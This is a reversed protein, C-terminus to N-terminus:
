YKFKENRTKESEFREKGIRFWPVRTDSFDSLVNTLTQKLRIQIKMRWSNVHLQKRTALDKMERINLSRMKLRRM